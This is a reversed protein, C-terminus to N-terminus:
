AVKILIALYDKTSLDSVSSQQIQDVITVTSEFSASANGLSGSTLGAVYLVKDGVAAGVATCAGAGNRGDFSMIKIGALTEGMNGPTLVVTDSSQAKAEADTALECVGKRTTTGTVAQLNAATIARSTDVGAQAEADTAIEITGEETTSASTTADTLNDILWGINYRDQASRVKALIQAKTAM